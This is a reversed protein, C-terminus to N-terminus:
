DDKIIKFIVGSQVWKYILRYQWSLLFATPSIRDWTKVYVSKHDFLERCNKIQDGKLYNKSIREM